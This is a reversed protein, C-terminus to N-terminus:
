QYQYGETGDPMLGSVNAYWSGNAKEEDTAEAYDPASDAMYRGFRGVFEYTQLSLIYSHGPKLEKASIVQWRERNIAGDSTLITRTEIDAVDGVTIERDKADITVTLFKPVAKYRILLRVALQVAQTRNSIWPAYISKARTEGRNNGDVSTFRNRYNKADELGGFPDIQDYYVAVQTVRISPDRTLVTGRMLHSADTLVSPDADPPRVALMKIEQSYEAWWVYFLGQQVIQSALEKVATPDVVTRTTRYTPLYTNGETNWDDIPIFADPMPTHNKFLDELALWFKINEYRGTRQVADRDGHEDPLTDLAGRVVGSLLFVGDGEDTYGSYSFLEEGISFYKTAGTNGFDDSLDAEIGFVRVATTAADIDGYLDLKSTRPFEAKKDGALRLPDLGTITVKGSGDPGDVKDVVYLRQRMDVLAQGEYGDYIRLFMDNFLDNRATWLAWFPGRVPLPKGSVVGSRDAISFDGWRDNWLFDPMTVTAKGTVGLPDRGDLNSGANIQSESTSVSMEVPIPNLEQNDTDSFDAFDYVGPRGDVFRWKISGTMDINPLDGCTGPCNYCPTGTATCPSVGFRNVCRPQELEVITIPRRATM